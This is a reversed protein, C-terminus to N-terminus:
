ATVEGATTTAVATRVAFLAIAICAGGLLVGSAVDTPFHMGRYLRSGAVALPGLVALMWVVARVVPNHVRNTVIIALGVYLVVAAATHGSPYSSTPPTDDLRLVDPRNRDVFFTTSVFVTVELLLAIALFGIERWCKVCGLIFVVFAAAAIVTITDAIMSGYHSVDDWAGTRRTEFWRNVEVDWGSPGSVINTVVLGLGIMAATLVVYAVITM